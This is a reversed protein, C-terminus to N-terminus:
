PLIAAGPPSPPMIGVSLPGTGKTSLETENADSTDLISADPLTPRQQHQTIGIPNDLIALGNINMNNEARLFVVRKYGVDGLTSIWGRKVADSSNLRLLIVVALSRGSQEKALESVAKRDYSTLFSGETKLPKLVRSLEDSYYRVVLDAKQEDRFRAEPRGIPHPTSCATFLFAGMMLLCASKMM